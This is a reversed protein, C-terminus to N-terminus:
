KNLYMCTTIAGLVTDKIPSYYFQFSTHLFVSLNEYLNKQRTHRYDFAHLFPYAGIKKLDSEINNRSARSPLNQDRLSYKLQRM